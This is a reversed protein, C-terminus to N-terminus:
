RKIHRTNLFRVYAMNKMLEVVWDIGLDYQDFKELEQKPFVITKKNEVDKTFDNKTM